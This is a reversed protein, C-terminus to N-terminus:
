LQNLEEVLNKKAAKEYLNIFVETKYIFPKDIFHQLVKKRGKYYLFDPVLKYETRILTAYQQYVATSQGLIALDFDILFQTDSFNSEHTKTAIIQENIINLESRSIITALSQLAVKASKEENDKKWINYIIDHYFISFAVLNPQSLEGIYTDYYGFLEKLHQLNHYTRHKETYRVYLQEWLRSIVDSDTTYLRILNKFRNELTLKKLTFSQKVFIFVLKVDVVYTM